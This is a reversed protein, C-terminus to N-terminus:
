KKERAWAYKKKLLDDKLRGELEKEALLKKLLDNEKELRKIEKLQAPTMGHRFGAEGMTEFKKKWSYFTAPYIGHKELTATVGQESAEKLIQLKDEKTFSRKKMDLQM